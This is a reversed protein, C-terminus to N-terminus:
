LDDRTLVHTGYRLERPLTSRPIISRYSAGTRAELSTVQGGQVELLVFGRATPATTGILARPGDGLCPTVVHRLGNAKGPYYGHHHGGIFLARGKLVNELATDSLVQTERGVTAPHIPLHGFVIRVPYAAAATLQQDVWTRQSTSLAGVTTADLSIFFTTGVVFSYRLPYDAGDILQAKLARAPQKWQRVYEAREGEFGPYASADHNGPSPAVAISAALLPTTVAAHFGSWMAQYDLGAQQGAVMDGAILVVDPKVENVLAAVAQHVAVGYTTSGYSGNLDSLVAIRLPPPVGADPPSGADRSGADPTGAGADPTALGANPTAGGDAEATAGAGADGADWLDEFDEPGEPMPGCAALTLAALLAAARTLAARSSPLSM